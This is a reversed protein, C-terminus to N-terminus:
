LRSRWLAHAAAEKIGLAISRRVEDHHEKALEEQNEAIRAQLAAIERERQAIEEQLTTYYYAGQGAVQAAETKVDATKVSM